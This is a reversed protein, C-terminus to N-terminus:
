KLLRRGIILVVVLLRIAEALLLLLSPSSTSGVLLLPLPLLLLLLRVTVTAAGKVREWGRLGAAGFDVAENMDIKFWRNRGVKLVITGAM